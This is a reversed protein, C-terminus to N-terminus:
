RLKLIELESFYDEPDVIMLAAYNKADFCSYKFLTFFCKVVEYEDLKLLSFM